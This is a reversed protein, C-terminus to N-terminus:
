AANSFRSGARGAHQARGGGRSRPPQSRLLVGDGGLGAAPHVGPREPVRSGARRPPRHRTAAVRRARRASPHRHEAIAGAIRLIARRKAGAAAAAAASGARRSVRAADDLARDAAFGALRRALPRLAPAAARAAAERGQPTGRDAPHNSQRNARKGAVPFEQDAVEVYVGRVLDSVFPFPISHTILFRVLPRMIRQLAAVLSEPAARATKYALELWTPHNVVNKKLNSNVHSIKGRILSCRTPFNGVCM